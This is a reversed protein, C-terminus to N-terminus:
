LVKELRKDNLINEEKALMEKAKEEGYWKIYFYRRSKKFEEVKRRKSVDSKGYFHVVIADYVFFIGYGEKKLSNCLDGEEFYLFLYEDFGGVKEYADRRIFLASGIIPDHELFAINKMIRIGFYREFFEKWVFQKPWFPKKHWFFNKEPLLVRPGCMGAEPHAEMFDFLIKIAGKEIHTDPNLAFIYKSELKKSLANHGGGFGLNKGSYQFDVLEGKYSDELDRLDDGSGNELVIVRYVIGSDRMDKLVSEICRSLYAKTKYNVIQIAIDIM